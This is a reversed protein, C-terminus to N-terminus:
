YHYLNNIRELSNAYELLLRTLIKGPPVEIVWQINGKSV